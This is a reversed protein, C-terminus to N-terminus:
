CGEKNPLPECTWGTNLIHMLKGELKHVGDILARMSADLAPPPDEFTDEDVEVVDGISDVLLSIPGDATRVVVNVPVMSIPRDGFNLRRRLDVAMVIQGRLNILGRIVNPVLPVKTVEQWQIVEQVQEVPIGFFRDELFFTCFQRTM